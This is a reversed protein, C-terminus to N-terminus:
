RLLLGIKISKKPIIIIVKRLQIAPIQPNPQIQDPEIQAQNLQQLEIPQLKAINLVLRNILPKARNIPWLGIAKWGTLVNKKNLRRQRVKSYYELFSRKDM